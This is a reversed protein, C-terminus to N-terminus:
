PARNATWDGSSTVVIVSPGANVPGRGSFAGDGSYASDVALDGFYQRVEFTKGDPGTNTIMWDGARGDYRFIRDGSGTSPLTITPMTSLPAFSISWSGGSTITLSKAVTGVGHLGFPVVGSYDGVADVIREGTSAGTGDLAVIAFPGSGHYSVTLAGSAVAPPLTIAGNGM